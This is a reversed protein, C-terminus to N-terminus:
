GANQCHLVVAFPAIGRGPSGDRARSHKRHSFELGPRHRSLVDVVEGVPAPEATLQEAALADAEGLHGRDPKRDGGAERDRGLGAALVHAAAALQRFPERVLDGLRHRPELVRGPLAEAVRAVGQEDRHARPRGDRHGAHHVRDEVEAQVVVRGLPERARGPVLAEREIGIAPQDLHEPVDDGADVPVPELPIEAGELVLAADQLVDIELGGVQALQDAAELPDVRLVGPILEGLVRTVLELARDAGDEVRPLRGPGLDVPARVLDRVVEARGHVDDLHDEPVLAVIGAGADAERTVRRGPLRAHPALEEDVRLTLVDHGPDACRLRDGPHLLTEGRGEVLEGLRHRAQLLVVALHLVDLERDLLTREVEQLGAGALARGGGGQPDRDLHDALAQEALLLRDGADIRRLEVLQEVRPDVGRGFVVDGRLAEVGRRARRGAPDHEVGVPRLLQTARSLGDDEDAGLRRRVVDVPDDLRAADEGGVAAHGGVGRHDGAPHALGAHGAAVRERDVERGAPDPEPGLLEGLAVQERDVAAGAVHDDALYQEDRRLDIVAELRQEAPGVRDAAQAHARVRVRGLIRDLRALEAGLPDAEAPRLVHEHGLLSEREDPRHDHGGRLVLAALREVAQERELLLVELPDQLRHAAQRHRDPQEIRGQVLKQRRELLRLRLLHRAPDAGEVLGVRHQPRAAAAEADEIGFDVLHLHARDDRAARATASRLPM